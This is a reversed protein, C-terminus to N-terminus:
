YSSPVVSMVLVTCKPSGVARCFSHKVRTKCTNLREEDTKIQIVQLRKTIVRIHKTNSFLFLCIQMTSQLNITEFKKAERIVKNTLM